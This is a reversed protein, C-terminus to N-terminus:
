SPSPPGAPLASWREYVADFLARGAERAKSQDVLYSIWSPLYSYQMGVIASDGGTLYEFTDASAANIWGSGTTGAVLLNARQFAGAHELDEVALQARTEADAATALGAYARIPEKAPRDVHGAIQGATPGTGTFTPGALRPHGM